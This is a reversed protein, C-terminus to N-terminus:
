PSVPPDGDTDVGAPQPSAAAIEVLRALVPALAALVERDADDGHRRRDWIPTHRRPRRAPQFDLDTDAVGWAATAGKKTVRRM